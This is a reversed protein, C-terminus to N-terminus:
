MKIYITDGEIRISDEELFLKLLMLTLSKAPIGAITAKKIDLRITDEELIYDITARVKLNFNFIVKVKAKILATNNSINVRLNKIDELDVLAKNTTSSKPIITKLRKFESFGDLYFNSSEFCGELLELQNFRRKIANKCRAQFINVQTRQGDSTFITKNSNTTILEPTITTQFGHAQMNLSENQFHMEQMNVNGNKLCVIDVDTSTDGQPDCNGTLNITNAISQDIKLSLAPINFNMETKGFNIQGNKIILEDLAILPNDDELTTSYKIFAAKANFINDLISVTATINSDEKSAEFADGNYKVYLKSAELEGQVLKDVKVTSVSLDSIQFIDRASYSNLSIFISLLILILKNM